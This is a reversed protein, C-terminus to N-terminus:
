VCVGQGVALRHFSYSFLPIKHDIDMRRSRRLRTLVQARNEEHITSHSNNVWLQKQRFKYVCELRLKQGNYHHVIEFRM